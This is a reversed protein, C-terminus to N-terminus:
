YTITDYSYENVDTPYNMVIMVVNVIEPRSRSSYRSIEDNPFVLTFSNLIETM